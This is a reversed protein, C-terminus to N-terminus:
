WFRMLMKSDSLCRNFCSVNRGGPCQETNRTALVQMHRQWVLELIQPFPWKCLNFAPLLPFAFFPKICLIRKLSLFFALSVESFYCLLTLFRVLLSGLAFFSSCATIQETSRASIWHTSPLSCWPNVYSSLQTSLYLRENYSFACPVHM